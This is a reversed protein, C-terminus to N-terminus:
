KLGLYFNKTVNQRCPQGCRFGAKTESGLGIRSCVTDQVCDRTPIQFNMQLWLTTDRQRASDSAHRRRKDFHSPCRRSYVVCRAFLGLARIPEFIACQKLRLAVHQRRHVAASAAHRGRRAPFSVQADHPRATRTEREASAQLARRQTPAAVLIRETREGPAQM